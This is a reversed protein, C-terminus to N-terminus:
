YGCRPKAEALAKLRELLATDDGSPRVYRQTSRDVQLVSCARRESAEHQERLHRVAERRAAPTVM